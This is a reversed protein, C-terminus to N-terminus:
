TKRKIASLANHRFCDLVHDNVLGVSQMFAYCITSGVFKFGRAKLDKSMADSEHTSAPMESQVRWANQKTKGGVFAWIYADFSGFEEQTKLFAEANGISAAVKLKNRVIGSDALLRKIKAPSYRAIKEADFGDYAKRYSERKKLVTLWSLGAQAGELLLLEFLRRDDHAPVGWERDHYDRLLSHEEAWPCRPMRKMPRFTGMIPKAGQISKFMNSELRIRLAIPELPTFRLELLPIECAFGGLQFGSSEWAFHQCIAPVLM